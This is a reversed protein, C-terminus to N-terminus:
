FLAFYPTLISVKMYILTSSTALFLEKINQLLHHDIKQSTSSTCWSNTYTVYSVLPCFANKHAESLDVIAKYTTQLSSFGSNSKVLVSTFKKLRISIAHFVLSYYIIVSQGYVWFTLFYVGERFCSRSLLCYSINIFSRYCFYSFIIAITKIETIFSLDIRLAIDVKNMAVFISYLSKDASILLLSLVYIYYHCLIYSFCISDSATRFSSTLLTLCCYIGFQIITISKWFIQRKFSKYNFFGFDLCFFIRLFKFYMKILTYCKSEEPKIFIPFTKVRRVPALVM